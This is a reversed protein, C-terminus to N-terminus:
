FSRFGGTLDSEIKRVVDRLAPGFEGLMREQTFQNPPGGCNFAYIESRDVSVFPVGVANIDDRWSRECTIFGLRRYQDAAGEIRNQWDPWDRGLREAMTALAAAKREPDAAVILVWGMATKHLPIRSGIDLQVTFTTSGRAIDLYLARSRDLVGLAIPAALKEAAERIYPRAVNRIGLNALASYGLAIASPALQYKGTREMRTLYGLQCLTYTLRSVTPRPLGTREAIEQNGLFGDRVKFARLVELGRALAVVFKRDAQPWDTEFSDAAPQLNTL